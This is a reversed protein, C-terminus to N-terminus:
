TEVRRDVVIKGAEERVTCAAIEPDHEFFLIWNEEVAQALIAKKEEITTLPYLDYGMVWPLSLHATTPIVDGCYLLTQNGDQVQVLQQGVTHGESVLLHVGAYLETDGDLLHLKGAQGMLALDANRFSGADKESAHEAWKLHRRQVHHTARSFTLEWNDGADKQVIGGAHDFHLHTLIVDTVDPPAVGVAALSSLLSNKGHDLQYISREKDTWHEGMGTDVLIIRGATRLLMCRLAMPIRNSDDAGIKKEWLPKPVVGFMAGGDLAFRGDTISEITIDGINLM